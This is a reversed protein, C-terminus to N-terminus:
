DEGNNNDGSNGPDCDVDDVLESGNGSGSNCKPTKADYQSQGANGDYTSGGGSAVALAGGSALLALACGTALLKRM